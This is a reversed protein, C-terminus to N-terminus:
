SVAAEEVESGRMNKIQQLICNKAHRLAAVVPIVLKYRDRRDSAGVSFSNPDGRDFRTAGPRLEMKFESFLM